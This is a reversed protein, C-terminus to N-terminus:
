TRDAALPLSLLTSERDLHLANWRVKPFTLYDLIGWARLFAREAYSQTPKGYWWPIDGMSLSDRVAQFSCKPCLPPNKNKNKVRIFDMLPKFNQEECMKSSLKKYPQPNQWISHFGPCAWIGTSNGECHVLKIRETPNEEKPHSDMIKRFGGAREYHQFVNRGFRLFNM